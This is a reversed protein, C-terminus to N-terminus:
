RKWLLLTTNESELQQTTIHIQSECDEKSNLKATLQKIQRADEVGRKTLQGVQREISSEMTRMMEKVRSLVREHLYDGCKALEQRMDNLASEHATLKERCLKFITESLDSMDALSDESEPEATPHPELDLRQKSKRNGPM